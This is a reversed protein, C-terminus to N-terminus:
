RCEPYKIKDKASDCGSGGKIRPKKRKDFETQDINDYVGDATLAARVPSGVLMTMTACTTILILFKM